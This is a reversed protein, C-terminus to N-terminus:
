RTRRISLNFLRTRPRGGEHLLISFWRPYGGRTSQPRERQCGDGSPRYSRQLKAQPLRAEMTMSDLEIGLFELRTGSEEKEANTELGLRACLKAWSRKYELSGWDRLIGDNVSQGKPYSLDHIRRWGGNSKPVLGLPSCIYHGPLPESLISLRGAALQKNVDATLTTPAESASSHNESLFFRPPGTYGIRAGHRNIRLLARVYYRDPHNQLYRSWGKIKLPGAM